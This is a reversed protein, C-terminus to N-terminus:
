QEFYKLLNKLVISYGNAFMHVGDISYEKKLNGNNDTLGDNVNIFEYNLNKVLDKIAINAKLLNDNNRTKFLFEKKKKDVGYFDDKSNVPYYALVYVKLNPLRNKVQKLINHYNEILKEVKFDGDLAGIDNSGINIFIKSPELEFICEEMTNLLESMCYGAIGRNYIIYKKDLNQQLENIPFYEMLSSGVMLIEGKKIYRNLAKYKKVKELKEMKFIKTITNRLNTNDKDKENMM